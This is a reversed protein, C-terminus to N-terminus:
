SVVQGSNDPMPFDKLMVRKVTIRYIPHHEIRNAKVNVHVQFNITKSLMAYLTQFRGLLWM